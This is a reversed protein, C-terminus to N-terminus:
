LPKNIWDVLERNMLLQNFIEEQNVFDEAKVSGREINGMDENQRIYYDVSKKWYNPSQPGGFVTTKSRELDAFDEFNKILNKADDVTLNTAAAKNLFDVMAPLVEDPKEHMYRMVRYHIAVLKMITDMNADMYDKMVFANSFWLGAPGIAENGAIAVFDPEKLLRIEQPLSGYYFDGEGRLFAAAAKADDAFDLIRVDDLTLDANELMASTIGAYSAKNLCFTKGRMQAFVARQAAKFNGKEEELMEITKIEGRDVQSKRGIVVFGKFQTISMFVRLEPTQPIINPIVNVSGECVDISNTILARIGSNENPFPILDFELGLENDLGIAHAGVYPQYDFYPLVGIKIQEVEGEPKEAFAAFGSGILVSVLLVMSIMRKFRRMVAEKLTKDNFCLM